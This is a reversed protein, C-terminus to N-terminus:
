DTPPAFEGRVGLLRVPRGVGDDDRIRGLVTLAARVVTDAANTPAPLKMIKQKTFFPTYRIKVAVRVILRGAAAAEDAVRVALETVQADVDSPDTLDRPFTTEHSRSKPARPESVITTDGIGRGLLWYYRGMTPGFRGVLVEPDAAALDGVTRIGFEALNRQMKPGIGWLATTPRHAMVEGWNDATLRYVGGPKGFGTALKARHKNDGIGVSCALRTEDFVARQLTAAVGEPDATHVGVFAEDWGIVEVDPSASRLAGMVKDSMAEYAPNDAPLFVADPCRRAAERLPMGSRVGFARAEYSATAVVVRRQTPDGSGGVVVPRGRLEPHRLIEVAALFQDLDVHLIWWTTEGAAAPRDRTDPDASM